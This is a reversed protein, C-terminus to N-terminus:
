IYICMCLYSLSGRKSNFSRTWWTKAQRPAGWKRVRLHVPALKNCWRRVEPVLLPERNGCFLWQKRKLYNSARTWYSGSWVCALLQSWSNTLAWYFTDVPRGLVGGFDHLTTLFEWTYHSTRHSQARSWISNWHIKIWTPGWGHYFYFSYITTLTQLAMYVKCGDQMWMRRQDRLCLTFRVQVPEVKEVLSLAQLTITVPEWDQTHLPGLVWKCGIHFCCKPVTLSPVRNRDVKIHAILNDWTSKGVNWM